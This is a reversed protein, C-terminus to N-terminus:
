IKTQRPEESCIPVSNKAARSSPSPGFHRTNKLSERAILASLNLTSLSDPVLSLYRVLLHTKVMTLSHYTNKDRSTRLSDERVGDLLINVYQFNISEQPKNLFTLVDQTAETSM